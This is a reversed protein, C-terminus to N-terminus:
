RHPIHFDATGGLLEIAKKLIVISTTGDVDYDGYLLVKERREIAARLREVARDMDRLLFPDHLADLEPSLFEQARAPDGFGRSVLVAAPLRHWDLSQQIRSVAGTCIDPLRWRAEPRVWRAPAAVDTM